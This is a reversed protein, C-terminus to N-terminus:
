EQETADAESIGAYRGDAEDRKYSEQDDPWIGVEGPSDREIEPPFCPLAVVEPMM